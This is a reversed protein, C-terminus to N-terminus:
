VDPDPDDFGEDRCNPKVASRDVERDCDANLAKRLRGVNWFTVGGIRTPKPLHGSNCWRWVTAASISFLACVVPLRVLASAPLEDFEEFARRDSDRM